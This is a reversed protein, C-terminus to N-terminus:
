DTIVEKFCKQRILKEVSWPTTKFSGRLTGPMVKLISPFRTPYCGVKPWKRVKAIVNYLHIYAESQRRYHDLDLPLDFEIATKVARREADLEVEKLTDISRKLIRAPPDKQYTLWSWFITEPCQGAIRRNWIETEELWQCMHGYEHALTGLWLQIPYVKCACALTMNEVDFYGGLRVKDVKDYVTKATPLYVRIGNEKAVSRVHKVFVNIKSNSHFPRPM